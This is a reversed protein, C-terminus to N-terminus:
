KADKAGKDKDTAAGDQSAADKQNRIRRLDELLLVRDSKCFTRFDEAGRMGEVPIWYHDEGANRWTLMWAVKPADPGVLLPLLKGGWWDDGSYKSLGDAYGVETMAPLKGHEAALREVLRMDTLTGDLGEQNWSYRDFGLVDVWELGPFRNELYPRPQSSPHNPSIVYILQHVDRTDRLYRVTFRWLKIYEQETGSKAGWWFWGGLHEHWPRFLVPVPRGQDDELSLVFDALRNLVDLFKEHAEGGPLVAKINDPHVDYFNKGTLPNWAHWAMELVGGRAHHALMRDRMIRGFEPRHTVLHFDYGCVAPWDGATALVDSRNPEGRFTFGYLDSHQHGFLIGHQRSRHLLQWLTVTEATADPDILPAIKPAAPKASEAPSAASPPQDAACTHSACMALLGLGLLTAPLIDLPSIM